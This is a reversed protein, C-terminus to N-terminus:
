RRGGPSSPDSSAATNASATAPLPPTEAVAGGSSGDRWAWAHAALGLAAGAVLDSVYHEKMALTAYLILAAWAGVAAVVVVPVRPRGLVRHGFALTFALFGAHLSPFAAYPGNYALLLAHAASPRADPPRPSAAPFVAFALLSVGVLVAFGSVYRRLDARTSALWPVPGTLLFLSQYAPLWRPDYPVWRDLPCSPPTWTPRWAHHSVVAYAALFLASLLVTL